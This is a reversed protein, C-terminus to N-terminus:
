QQDVAEFHTSVGRAIHQRKMQLAIKLLMTTILLLTKGCSVIRDMVFNRGIRTSPSFLSRARTWSMGWYLAM